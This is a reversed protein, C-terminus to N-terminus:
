HYFLESIQDCYLPVTVGTIGVACGQAVAGAKTQFITIRQLKSTFIVNFIDSRIVSNTFYFLKHKFLSRM